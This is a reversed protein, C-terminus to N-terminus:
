STVLATLPRRRARPRLQAILVAPATLVYRAARGSGPGQPRSPGQNAPARTPALWGAAVLRGWDTWATRVSLQHYAAYGGLVSRIDTLTCRDGLHWSLHKALREACPHLEGRSCSFRLCRWWSRGSSLKYAPEWTGQALRARSFAFRVTVPAVVLLAPLVLPDTTHHAHRRRRRSGSRGQHLPAAETRCAAVEIGPLAPGAPPCAPITGEPAKPRRDPDQNAGKGPGDNRNDPARQSGEESLTATARQGASLWDNWSLCCLWPWPM